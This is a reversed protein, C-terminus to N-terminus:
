QRGDGKVPVDGTPLEAKHICSGNIGVAGVAGAGAPETGLWGGFAVVGSGDGGKGGRGSGDRGGVTLAGGPAFAGAASAATATPAVGVAVGRAAKKPKAKGSAYGNVEGEEGEVFDLLAALARRGRRRRGGIGNLHFLGPRIEGSRGRGIGAGKAGFVDAVPGAGGSVEVVGLLVKTIAADGVGFLPDVGGEEKGGLMLVEAEEEGLNADLLLVVGVGFEKEEFGDLAIRGGERGSEEEGVDEGLKVLVFFGEEGGVPDEFGVGVGFGSVADGGLGEEGEISGGEGEVMKVTEDHEVAVVGFSSVLEALGVEGHAVGAPGEVDEVLDKASIGCVALCAVVGGDGEGGEVVEIAEVFFDAGGDGPESAGEHAGPEGAVVEVGDAFVGAKDGDM